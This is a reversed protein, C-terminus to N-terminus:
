HFRPLLVENEVSYIQGYSVLIYWTIGIMEEFASVITSVIEGVHHLFLISLFLPSDLPLILFSRKMLFSVVFHLELMLAKSEVWFYWVKLWSIGFIHLYHLM